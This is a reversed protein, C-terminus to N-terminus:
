PMEQPMTSVPRMLLSTLPSSASVASSAVAQPMDMSAADLPAEAPSPKPTVRMSENVPENMSASALVDTKRPALRLTGVAAQLAPLRESDLVFANRVAGRGALRRNLDFAALPDAGLEVMRMFAWNDAKDFVTGAAWAVGELSARNKSAASMAAATQDTAASAAVSTVVSKAVVAGAEQGAKAAAGAGSVVAAVNLLVRLPALGYKYAKMRMGGEESLGQTWLVVWLAEDATLGDNFVELPHTSQLWHYEQREPLAPLAIEARGRCVAMPSVTVRRGTATTVSFPRGDDRHEYLRELMRPGQDSHYGGVDVLKDGVALGSQPVAAIITLREDVNLVRVWAVRDEEALQDSTAVSFPLAWVKECGDARASTRAVAAQLAVSGKGYARIKALKAEDIPRHDDVTYQMAGCACLLLPALLAPWRRWNM